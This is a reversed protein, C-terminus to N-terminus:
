RSSDQLLKSERPFRHTHTYMHICTRSLFYIFNCHTEELSCTDCLRHRSIVCTTFRTVSVRRMLLSEYCADGYRRRIQEQLLARAYAHVYTCRKTEPSALSLSLSLRGSSTVQSRGRVHFLFRAPMEVGGSAKKM